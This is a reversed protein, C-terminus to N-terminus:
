EKQDIIRSIEGAKIPESVNAKVSEKQNEATSPSIYASDDKKVARVKQDTV